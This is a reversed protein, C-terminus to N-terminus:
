RLRGVYRQVDHTAPSAPERLRDLLPRAPAPAAERLLTEFRTAQGLLEDDVTARALRLVEMAYDANSVMWETDTVRGTLRRLLVHLRAALALKESHSM